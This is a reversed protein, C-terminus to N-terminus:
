KSDGSEILKERCEVLEDHLPVLRPDDHSELGMIAENLSKLDNRDCNQARELRIRARVTMSERLM